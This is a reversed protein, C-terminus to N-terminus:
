PSFLASTTKYKWLGGQAGPGDPDLLVLPVFLCHPYSGRGM